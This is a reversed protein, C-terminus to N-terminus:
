ITGIHCHCLGAQTGVSWVLWGLYGPHRVYRYVGHRVVRHEPRRRVMIQHTFNHRATVEAAKRLADGAVVMALGLACVWARGKLSPVLLYEVACEACAAGEGYPRFNLNFIL